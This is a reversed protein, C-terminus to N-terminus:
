STWSILLAARASVMVQSYSRPDAPEPPADPLFPITASLDQSYDVSVRGDALVVALLSVSPCVKVLLLLRPPRVVLLCRPRPFGNSRLPRTLPQLSPWRDASSSCRLLQQTHKRM